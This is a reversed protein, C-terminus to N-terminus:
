WCPWDFELSNIILINLQWFFIWFKYKMNIKPLQNSIVTCKVPTFWNQIFCFICLFHFYPLYAPIFLVNKKTILHVMHWGFGYGPNKLLSAIRCSRVTPPWLSSRFIIKFYWWEVLIWILLPQRQQLQITTPNVVVVNIERIKM